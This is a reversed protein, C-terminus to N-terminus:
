TSSGNESPATSCETDHKQKHSKQAIREPRVNRAQPRGRDFVLQFHVREEMALEFCGILNKSQVFVDRVAPPLSPQSADPVIFGWGKEQKFSKVRGIFTSGTCADGDEPAQIGSSYAPAAATAAELSQRLPMPSPPLPAQSIVFAACAASAGADAASRNMMAAPNSDAVTLGAPSPGAGSPGAGGGGPGATGGGEGADVPGTGPVDAAGPGAAGAGTGCAAQLDQAQPKGDKLELKFTVSVGKSFRGLQQKHLFVDRRFQRFAEPCEIFGFGTAENFSKITGTYRLGPEASRISGSRSGALQLHRARPQQNVMIIEFSVHDGLKLTGEALCHQMTERPVFVDSRYLEFADQCAIFCYQGSSDIKKVVGFFRQRGLHKEAQWEMFSLWRVGAGLGRGLEMVQKTSLDPVLLTTADVQRYFYFDKEGSDQRMKCIREATSKLADPNQLIAVVLANTNSYVDKAAGQGDAAKKLCLCKTSSFLSLCDFSRRVEDPYLHRLHAFLLATVLSDYGADHLDTGQALTSAYRQQTARMTEVAACSSRGRTKRDKVQEFLKHLNGPCLRLDVTLERILATDYFGGPFWQLVLEAFKQPGRPLPTSQFAALLYAVDKEGQHVVVPKKAVAILKFIDQLSHEYQDESAETETPDALFCGADELEMKSNMVWANLDVGQQRKQRLRAAHCLFVKDRNVQQLGLLADDIVVASTPPAQDDFPQCPVGEDVCQNLGCTGSAIVSQLAEVDIAFCRSKPPAVLFDFTEVTPHRSGAAPPMLLSIGLQLPAFAEALCCLKELRDVETEHYGDPRGADKVGFMEVDLAIFDAYSIQSQFKAKIDPFNHKTARM